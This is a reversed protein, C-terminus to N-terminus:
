LLKLQRALESAEVRNKVNLKQYISRVQTRVTNVSVVLEDAIEQNTQGACLSQLVRQEQRSLPEILATRGLAAESVREQVFALLLHHLYTVQTEVRLTPSLSQLLAQMPEGEDLFLRTYGEACAQAVVQHLRKRAELLRKTSADALSLLLQAQLAIHLRGGAGASVAVQESIQRAEEPKEQALLLRAVLLDERESQALWGYVPQRQHAWREVASLNGSKIWLWVLTAQIELCLRHRLSLGPSAAPSYRTLLIRCRQQAQASQSQVQELRALVLAAQVSFEENALREGMESAEMAQQEADALHNWEYSIQALGLQADGIDDFDQEQRASTLIQLFYEAALYVEAHEFYARGLLVSNSRMISPSDLQEFLGRAELFIQIAKEAQGTLLEETGLVHMNLGFRLDPVGDLGQQRVYSAAQTINGTRRELLARTFLLRKLWILDEQARFGEEALLLLEEVQVRDQPLFPHQELVSTFLLGEVWCLMLLPSRRMLDSPLATLWRRLLHTQQIHRLSWAPVQIHRVRLFQEILAGARVCEGVALTTEIADPLLNHQLYWHIAQEAQIRLQETGFRQRAIHLMAEAFLPHYRYWQQQVEALHPESRDFRELYLNTRELTNLHATSENGGLLADCLSSNLSSLLCTQLLFDQLPLPQLLFVESVFYELFPHRGGDLLALLSENNLPKESGQLTFALLRLGAAWGQLRADLHHLLPTSLPWSIVQQLFTLMEKQSFRLNMGTVERLRSSARLHALPLPPESRTLLILHVTAPLHDLFFAMSEHIQPSTIAQYNELVLIVEGPLHALENLFTSLTEELLIEHRAAFIARAEGHREVKIEAEEPASPASAASIVFSQRHNLLRAQAEQNSQSFQCATLLYNWFRAPDNDAVELSVWAIPPFRNTAQAAREIMWQRILTTKGSGAPAVLLTLSSQFATDLLSLLRERRVLASPLPPPQLKPLLFPLQQEIGQELRLPPHGEPAKPTTAENTLRWAVEELHEITLDASRGAYRKRTRKGQSRYAYWYGEEGRQRTEKLLNLRGHQGQFSFSRHTRLWPFWREIDQYWLPSDVSEDNLWLYTSSTRSWILAPLTKRKM